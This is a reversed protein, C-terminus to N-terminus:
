LSNGRGSFMRSILKTTSTPPDPSSKSIGLIIESASSSYPTTVPLALTRPVSPGRLATAVPSTNAYAFLERLLQLAFRM